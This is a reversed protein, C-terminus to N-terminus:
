RGPVPHGSTTRPVGGFPSVTIPTPPTGGAVPVTATILPASMGLVLAAGSPVATQHATATVTPAFRALVLAVAGPTVTKRDTTTAVPALRTSTLAAAGLTVAISAGASVVPAQVMLVLTAAGPAVLRPTAVTPAHTTLSVAAAGPIARKHDTATVSPALPTAVLIATGPTVRVNAMAAVTPALRTITLTATTTTVGVGVVPALRAVALAAAGPTVTRPAVVVPALRTVTVSATGPNVTVPATYTVWLEVYDLSTTVATPSNGRHANLRAVIRGATKLDVEAPTSTFTVDLNTDALPETADNTSGASVGNNRNTATVDAVSGQTSVKYQYRIVVSSITAGVPIEADSFAAFDWDGTVNGNKAPAATAYSADDAGANAPSTWGNGAVAGRTAKTVTTAM